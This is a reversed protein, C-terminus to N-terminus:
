ESMISNEIIKLIRNQDRYYYNEEKIKKSVEIITSLIGDTYDLDNRGNAKIGKRVRNFFDECSMAILVSFQSIIKREKLEDHIFNNKKLDEMFINIKFFFNNVFSVGGEEL